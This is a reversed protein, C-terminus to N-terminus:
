KDVSQVSVGFYLLQSRRICFKNKWLNLSGLYVVSRVRTKNEKFTFMKIICM